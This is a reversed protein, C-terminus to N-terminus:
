TYHTQFWSVSQNDIIFYYSEVSNCEDSWKQSSHFSLLYMVIFDFYVFCAGLLRDEIRIEAYREGNIIQAHYM